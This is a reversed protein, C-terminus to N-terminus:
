KGAQNLAAALAGAPIFRHWVPREALSSPDLGGPWRPAHPKRRLKMGAQSPVRDAEARQLARVGHRLEGM